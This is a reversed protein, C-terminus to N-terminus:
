QGRFRLVGNSTMSLPSRPLSQMSYIMLNNMTSRSTSSGYRAIRSQHSSMEYHVHYYELTILQASHRTPRVLLPKGMASSPPMTVLWLRSSSTEASAFMSARRRRIRSSTIMHSINPRWIRLQSCDSVIERIPLSPSIPRNFTLVRFHIKTSMGHWLMKMPFYSEYVYPLKSSNIM